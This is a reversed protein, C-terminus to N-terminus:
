DDEPIMPGYVEKHEGTYIDVRCCRSHGENSWGFNIFNINDKLVRKTSALFDMEGNINLHESVMVRQGVRFKPDLVRVNRVETMKGRYVGKATCYCGDIFTINGIFDRMDTTATLCQVKWEKIDFQYIKYKHKKSNLLPTFEVELCVDIGNDYLKVDYDM